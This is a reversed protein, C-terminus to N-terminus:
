ARDDIRSGGKMIRGRIFRNGSKKRPGRGADRAQRQLLRRDHGSGVDEEDADRMACRPGRVVSSMAEM